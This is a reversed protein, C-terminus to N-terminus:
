GDPVRGGTCTNGYGGHGSPRLYKVPKAHHHGHCHAAPHAHRHSQAYSYHDPPAYGDRPAPFRHRDATAGHRHRAAHPQGHARRHLGGALAGRPHTPDTAM